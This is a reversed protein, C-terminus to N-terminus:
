RCPMSFLAIAHRLFTLLAPEAVDDHCPMIFFMQLTADAADVDAAAVYDYRFPM